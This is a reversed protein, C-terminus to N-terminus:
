TNMLDLFGRDIGILYPAPSTPGRSKRLIGSFAFFPESRM